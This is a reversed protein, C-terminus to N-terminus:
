RERPEEAIEPLERMTPPRGEHPLVFVFSAGGGSRNECRITGRHASVVGRCITLGLGMGSETPAPAGRRFKEFISEEQGPPIGSGRDAVEVEVGDQMSRARIEIATGHPSYKTANELLNVLVQELLVADINVLSAEEPITVEVPRGLLSGELRGLATGVVEDLPQWEKKARLERGELATVDLVNRLIRNLRTAESLINELYERRRQPSAERDEDLLATVSGIVVAMPTRLDHSISSLLANRLQEQDLREQQERHIEESIEVRELALTLQAAFTELLERNGAPALAGPTSPRAVLVGITGNSATLPLIQEAAVSGVDAVDTRHGAAVRQARRFVAPSLEPVGGAPPAHLLGSADVRLVWVDGPLAARVHRSAVAIVEDGSRAASFERSMAYLQRTRFESSRASAAERRVRATMHSIVLGVCLMVAYTAFYRRDDDAFSFYPPTFFFDFAAVALAVTLISALYGFRAAVFVICVLYLAVIDPQRHGLFFSIGTGATVALASAALSSAVSSRRADVLPLDSM